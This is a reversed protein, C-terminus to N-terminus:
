WSDVWAAPALAWFTLIAVVTAPPLLNFLFQKM